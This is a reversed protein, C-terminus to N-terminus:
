AYKTSLEYIWPRKNRDSKLYDMIQNEYHLTETIPDLGELLMRRPRSDIAFDFAQGDPVFVKLSELDVLICKNTEHHALLGAICDIDVNKLTAPLIGNRVCNHYFITGFSPALVARIGYEGLAWVAHERSSGCGFNHGAVLIGANEFEPRNLVFDPNPERTDSNIYRWGAFLGAALGSKSVTKMERSPIITDTDIDSRILPVAVAELRRFPEM